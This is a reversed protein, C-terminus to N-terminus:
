VILFKIIQVAWGNNNPHYFGSPHFTSPWTARIPFLLPTYLTKTPLGSPLLGYPYGLRLHSSLILISRWSTPHPPTSQISRAYPLCLHHASTFATNFRRTEYFAPFKKVLFQNAEWSPSQQMYYTLLFPVVQFILRLHSPLILISRWSTPHPPISHISNASSLSMHRSSTFATIFRRNEYFESFKKVLQSGTLKELLVRSCQTLLYTLLYM